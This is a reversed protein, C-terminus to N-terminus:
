SSYMIGLCGFSCYYRYLALNEKDTGGMDDPTLLVIAYGVESAYQEFKEIVTKGTNPQEHLDIPTLGLSFLFSSLENKAADDRGVILVRRLKKENTHAHEMPPLWRMWQSWNFARDRDQDPDRPSMWAIMLISLYLYDWKM